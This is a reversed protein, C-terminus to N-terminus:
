SREETAGPSQELQLERKRQEEKIKEVFEAFKRLRAMEADESGQDDVGDVIKYEDIRFQVANYHKEIEDATSQSNYGRERFKFYGTLGASVSVLATVIVAYWRVAPLEGIVATLTSGVISGVIIFGQLLNHVRRNRTASVRFQEVIDLASARYIRLSEVSDIGVKAALFHKRHLLERTTFNLEVLNPRNKTLVRTAAVASVVVALLGVYRVLTPKEDWLAVVTSYALLLILVVSSALWLWHLRRATRASRLEDVKLDLDKATERQLDEVSEAILRGEPAYEGQTMVIFRVTGSRKGSRLFTSRDLSDCALGGPGVALLSRPAADGVDHVGRREALHALELLGGFGGDPLGSRLVYPGVTCVGSM